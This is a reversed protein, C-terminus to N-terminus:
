AARKGFRQEVNHRLSEIRAGRSGTAMDYALRVRRLEAEAARLDAAAKDYLRFARKAEKLIDDKTHM